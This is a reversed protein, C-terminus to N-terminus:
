IATTAIAARPAWHGGPADCAVMTATGGFGDNDSDLYFTIPTCAVDPMTADVSVNADNAADMGPPPNARRMEWAGATRLPKAPRMSPEHTRVRLAAPARKRRHMSDPTLLRETARSRGERWRGSQGSVQMDWPTRLSSRAAVISLPARARVVSGHAVHVFSFPTTPAHCWRLPTVVKLM